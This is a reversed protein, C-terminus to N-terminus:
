TMVEDLEKKIEMASALSCYACIIGNVLVAYIDRTTTSHICVM